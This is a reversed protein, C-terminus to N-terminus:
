SNQLPVSTMLRLNIRLIQMFGSHVIQALLNM